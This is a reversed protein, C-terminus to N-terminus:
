KSAIGRIRKFLKWKMITGTLKGFGICIGSSDFLSYEMINTINKKSAKKGEAIERDEAETKFRWVVYITSNFEIESILSDDFHTQSSEFTGITGERFGETNGEQSKYYSLTQAAFEELISGNLQKPNWIQMSGIIYKETWIDLEGYKEAFRFPPKQPLHTDLEDPTIEQPKEKLVANLLSLPLTNELTAVEKVQIYLNNQPDSSKYFGLRVNDWVLTDNPVVMGTFNFKLGEIPNKGDNKQYEAFALSRLYVWPVIQVDIGNENGFHGDLIPHNESFTISGDENMRSLGDFINWGKESSNSLQFLEIIGTEKERILESTGNWAWAIGEFHGWIGDLKSM